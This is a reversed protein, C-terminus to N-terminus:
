YLCPLSSDKGHIYANSLAVGVSTFSFVVPLKDWWTRIQKLSPFSDWLQWFSSSIESDNEGSIHMLEKASNILDKQGQSLEYLQGNKTLSINDTSDFIALIEYGVKFYHPKFCSLPLGLSIFQEKLKILREDDTPLGLFFYRPIKNSIINNMKKFSGIGKIGIRIAALLDLHEMWSEGDPLQKGNLLIRFLNDLSKLGEEPINSVPSYKDIAYVIALATLAVDDIQDVIEIAKSIGLRRERNNNQESRHLLLESLMEYDGDRESCAASIQAKRILLQFSPDGFIKLSADQEIMKPIVVDELKKVRKEVLTGAEFSWEQLAKSYEEHCIARARDESIGNVNLDGNVQIINSDTNGKAIQENNNNKMKPIIVM